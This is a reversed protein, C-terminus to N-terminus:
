ILQLIQGAKPTSVEIHDMGHEKLIGEAWQQLAAPGLIEQQHYRKDHYGSYHVLQVTSIHTKKLFEVITFPINEYHQHEKLFLDFYQQYDQDAIDQLQKNVLEHLTNRRQWEERHDPKKGKEEAGTIFSIHNSAPYSFRNSCDIYVAQVTSIITYDEERLFPFIMDGTFLVSSTTLGNEYTALLMVAGRSSEGHYVPFATVSLGPIQRITQKIGPKLSAFSVASRIHPITQLVQQWVPYTAYLPLKEHQLGTFSLSQAIWDAGLIHDLHGHTLWLADPIRNENKLLFPVTHHGADVVVEWEVTDHAILENKSSIISYSASGLDDAKKRDYYPHDTGLFVPWANGCGNVRVFLGM